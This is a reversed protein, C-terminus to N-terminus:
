SASRFSRHQELPASATASLTRHAPFGAIAVVTLDVRCHVTVDVRGGAHFRSTDVEVDPICSNGPGSLVNEAEAQAAQTAAQPASEQSAARAAAAAAASVRGDALVLTGAGIGLCLVTIVIVALIVM